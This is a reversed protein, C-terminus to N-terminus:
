SNNSLEDIKRANKEGEDIKFDFFPVIRIKVKAKFFNRFEGRKRKLFDLATKEMEEPYVSIYISSNSLDKSVDAKTVTILSNRNSEKKIFEGAQVKILSAVKEQKLSM